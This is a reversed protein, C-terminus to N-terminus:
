LQSRLREIKELRKRNVFLSFRNPQGSSGSLMSSVFLLGGSLIQTVPVFKHPNTFIGAVGILFIFFSLIMMPIRYSKSSVYANTYSGNLRVELYTLYRPLLPELADERPKEETKYWEHLALWEEPTVSRGLYEDQKQQMAALPKKMMGISFLYFVFTIGVSVLTGIVYTDFSFTHLVIPLIGFAIEMAIFFAIANFLALKKTNGEFRAKLIWIKLARMM